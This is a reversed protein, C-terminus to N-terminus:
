IIREWLFKFVCNLFRSSMGKRKKLVYKVLSLLEEITNTNHGDNNRFSKLHKIILQKSGPNAWVSTYSPDRWILFLVPFYIKLFFNLQKLGVIQFFNWFSNGACKMLLALLSYFLLIMLMYHSIIWLIGRRLLLKTM